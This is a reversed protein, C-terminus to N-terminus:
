CSAATTACLELLASLLHEMEFPKALFRDAGLQRARRASESDSAASIMVVPLHAHRAASRLTTLVQFGDVGPMMVDLLVCDPQHRDVACLGDIGDAATFVEYGEIALLAELFGRISPDDDIVLLRPM